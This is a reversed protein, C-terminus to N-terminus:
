HKGAIRLLENVEMDPPRIDNVIIRVQKQHLIDVTEKSSKTFFKHYPEDRLYREKSRLVINDNDVFLVTRMEM